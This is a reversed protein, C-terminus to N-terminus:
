IRMVKLEQYLINKNGNDMFITCLTVCATIHQVMEHGTSPSCTYLYIYCTYISSILLPLYIEERAFSQLLLSFMQSTVRITKM